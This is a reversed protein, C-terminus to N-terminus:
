ERGQPLPSVLEEPELGLENCNRSVGRRSPRRATTKSKIYPIVINRSVGRRSPRSTAVPSAMYLMRM